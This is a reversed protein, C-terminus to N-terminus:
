VSNSKNNSETTQKEARGGNPKEKEGIRRCRVTCATKIKSHREKPISAGAATKVTSPTESVIKEKLPITLAKGSKRQEHKRLFSGSWNDAVAPQKDEIFGREWSYLLEKRLEPNITSTEDVVRRLENDSIDRRTVNWRANAEQLQKLEKARAREKAAATNRLFLPSVDRSNQGKRIIKFNDRTQDIRRKLQSATLASRELHEKFLRGSGNLFKDRVIKFETKALRSFHAEFPSRKITKQKNWKLDRIITSLCLKISQENWWAADGIIM